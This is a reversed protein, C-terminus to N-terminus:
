GTCKIECAPKPLGAGGLMNEDFSSGSAPLSAVRRQTEKGIANPSGPASWRSARPAWLSVNNERRQLTKTKAKCARDSCSDSRRGVPPALLPRKM